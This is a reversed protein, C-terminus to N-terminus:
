RVPESPRKFEKTGQDFESIGFQVAVQHDM